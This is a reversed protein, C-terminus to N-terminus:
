FFVVRASTLKAVALTTLCAVSPFYDSRSAHCVFFAFFGQQFQFLRAVSQTSLSFVQNVLHRSFSGCDSTILESLLEEVM